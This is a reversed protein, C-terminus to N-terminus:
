PVCRCSVVSGRKQYKLLPYEQSDTMEDGTDAPVTSQQMSCPQFHRLVYVEDAIDALQHAALDMYNYQIEATNATQQAPLKQAVGSERQSNIERSLQPKPRPRPYSHMPQNQADASSAM